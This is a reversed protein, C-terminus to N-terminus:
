HTRELAECPDQCCRVNLRNPPRRQDERIREAGTKEVGLKQDLWAEVARLNRLIPIRERIHAVELEGHGRHIAYFEDAQAITGQEEDQSPETKTEITPLNKESM